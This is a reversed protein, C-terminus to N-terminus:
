RAGRPRHDFNVSLSPLPALSADPDRDAADSGKFQGTRGEAHVLMHGSKRHDVAMAGKM